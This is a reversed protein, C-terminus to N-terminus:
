QREFSNALGTIEVAGDAKEDYEYWEGETGLDIDLFESGAATHVTWNEGYGFDM